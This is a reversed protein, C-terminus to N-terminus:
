PVDVLYGSLVMDGSAAGASQYRVTSGPDATLWVRRGVIREGAGEETPIYSIAGIGNTTTHFGIASAQGLPTTLRASVYEIVLRKDAPVNFESPCRTPDTCVTFAVPTEAGQVQGQAGAPRPLVRGLTAGIGFTTAVMISRRGWM